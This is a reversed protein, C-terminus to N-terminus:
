GSRVIYTPQVVLEKICEKIYPLLTGMDLGQTEFDKVDVDVVFANIRTDKPM